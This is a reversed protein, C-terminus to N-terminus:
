GNDIEAFLEKMLRESKRGPEAEVGSCVDVGWAKSLKLMRAVNGPRVGGALLWRKGELERSMEALRREEWAVGTGGALHPDYRDVLLAWTGDVSSALATRLARRPRLVQVVGEGLRQIDSAGYDGHLQALDLGVADRVQEIEAISQDVFVGVLLCNRRAEGLESVIKRGQEVSVCRPSAPHFNLGLLDAGLSAALVADEGRTIGCIKVHPRATM